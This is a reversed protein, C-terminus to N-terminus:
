KLNVNSKKSTKRNLNKNDDKSIDEIQDFTLKQLQDYRKIEDLLGEIYERLFKNNLFSNQFSSYSITENSSM